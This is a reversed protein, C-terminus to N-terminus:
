GYKRLLRALRAPGDRDAPPVFICALNAVVKDYRERARSKLEAMGPQAVRAKSKRSWLDYLVTLAAIGRWAQSGTWSASRARCCSASPFVEM